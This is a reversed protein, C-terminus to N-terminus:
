KGSWSCRSPSAHRAGVTGHPRSATLVAALFDRSNCDHINAIERALASDGARNRHLAPDIAAAMKAEDLAGGLFANVRQATALSDSIAHRHEVVLLQTAPRASLVAKIRDLTRLYENKLMRRRAHTAIPQNRRALMRQQSDLIEDLNRECLIIRCPLGRPLQALLPAVIKVAKGRARCLWSSDRLLNKVPEFELYGRPNDEDAERLGDTLVEIGGAALMQMLMSTGSRPLGTVVILSQDLPPMDEVPASSPLNPRAPAVAATALNEPLPRAKDRSRMLRALRRHERASEADGLHKELLAALRMHAEPFNPNFSIAARFAEAARGYEKMGTLSRGLLFHALPYRSM